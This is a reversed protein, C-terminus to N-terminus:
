ATNKRAAEFARLDSEQVRYEKGLLYATLKKERIWKQVTVKPVRYREAIEKTTYLNDM